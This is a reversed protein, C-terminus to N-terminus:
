VRTAVLRGSGGGRSHPLSFQFIAMEVDAIFWAGGRPGSNKPIGERIRHCINIFWQYGAAQSECDEMEPLGLAEIIHKDFAPYSQPSICRLVKSGYSLKVYKIRFLRKLAENPNHLHKIAEQTYKIVDEASNSNCINTGLGHRKQDGGWLTIWYLDGKELYGVDQAKRSLGAELGKYQEFHPSETYKAYWEPAETAFQTLTLRRNVM